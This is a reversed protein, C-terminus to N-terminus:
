FYWSPVIQYSEQDDGNSKQVIEQLNMEKFINEKFRLASRDGVVGGRRKTICNKGITFDEVRPLTYMTCACIDSHLHQHTSGMKGDRREIKNTCTQLWVM